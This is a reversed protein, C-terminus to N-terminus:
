IYVIYTVGRGEKERERETRGDTRGDTQRDRERQTRANYCFNLSWSKTVGVTNLSQLDERNYTHTHIHTSSMNKLIYNKM